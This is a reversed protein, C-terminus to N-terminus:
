GNTKKPQKGTKMKKPRDAASAASAGFARGDKSILSKTRLEQALEGLEGDLRGGKWPGGSAASHTGGEIARM